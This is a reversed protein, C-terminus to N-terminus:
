EENHLVIQINPIANSLTVLETIEDLTKNAYYLVIINGDIEYDDAFVNLKILNQLAIKSLTSKITELDIIRIILTKTELKSM